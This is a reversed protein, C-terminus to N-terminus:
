AAVDKPMKKVFKIDKTFTKDGATALELIVNTGTGCDSIEEIFQPAIIVEKVNDYQDVFNAVLYETPKGANM